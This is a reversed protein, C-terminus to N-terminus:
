GGFKKSLIKDIEVLSYIKLPSSAARLQVHPWDKFSKWLGGPDLGLARAQEAYVQYGNIGDVKKQVSWETKGAV